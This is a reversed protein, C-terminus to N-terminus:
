PTTIPVASVAVGRPSLHKLLPLTPAAGKMGAVVCEANVEAGAPNTHTHDKEGFLAAVKEKGMSEYRRAIVENLDVFLAGGQKAAEAAWTSYSGVARGVAKGAEDWRNRPILSLVIPTAGKAKADAIYRRLYWGYSRVVEKRGTEKITVEKSEDGNGKISARARGEDMPGGDNHGFQMLVYDGPKLEAVVADWLGETLYTRSSRGGRARNEVRVRAPDFHAALPDGWGQQGATGVKVTSDGILWVTPRADPKATEQAQGASATLLSLGFLLAARRGVAKHTSTM